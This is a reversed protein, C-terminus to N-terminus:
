IGFSIFSIKNAQSAKVPLKYKWELYFILGGWFPNLFTLLYIKNREDQTLYDQLIEGSKLNSKAKRAVYISGFISILGAVLIIIDLIPDRM